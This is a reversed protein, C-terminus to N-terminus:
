ICQRLLAEFVPTGLCLRPVLGFGVAICKWTVFEAIERKPVQIGSFERPFVPAAMDFSILARAAVATTIRPEAEYAASL